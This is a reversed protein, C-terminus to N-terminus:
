SEEYARPNPDAGHDILVKCIKYHGRQVAIHLPTLDLNDKVNKNMSLLFTLPDSKSKEDILDMICKVIQIQGHAAAIHLPTRGDDDAPNKNIVQDAIYKFVALNGQFAAFHLVTRRRWVKCKPNKDGDLNDIFYKCVDFHGGQAAFHLATLGDKMAPNLVTTKQAIFKCLSLSGREAAIHHPSHQYLHRIQNPRLTYFQEVALALEKVNLVPAKELVLKWEKKFEVHNINYKEIMRTWFVKSKQLFEDFSKGVEKCMTLNPNDLNNFIEEGLTPFRALVEEM